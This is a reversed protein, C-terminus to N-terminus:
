DKRIERLHLYCRSVENTYLKKKLFSSVFSEISENNTYTTNVTSCKTVIIDTLSEEIKNSNFTYYMESSM